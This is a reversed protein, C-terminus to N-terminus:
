HVLPAERPKTNRPSSAGGRKLPLSFSFTAGPRSNNSAWIRGGHATIITHCISVLVHGANEPESRISLMRPRDRIDAMAQIANSILNIVVQQLQVRGSSRLFAAVTSAIAPHIAM